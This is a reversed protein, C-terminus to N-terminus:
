PCAGAQETVDEVRAQAQRTVKADTLFSVFPFNMNITNFTIKLTVKGGIGVNAPAPSAPTTGDPNTYTRVITASGTEGAGIQNDVFTQLSTASQCNGVALQRITANIAQSGSQASYFYLGYQILGFLVILIPVVILAFEVASAGSESRRGSRM